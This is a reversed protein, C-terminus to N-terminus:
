TKLVEAADRNSGYGITIIEAGNAALALVVESGIGGSGGLVLIHNNPQMKIFYQSKDM